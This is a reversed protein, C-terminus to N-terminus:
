YGKLPGLAVNRISKQLTIVGTITHKNTLFYAQRKPEQRQLGLSKQGSLGADRCEIEM